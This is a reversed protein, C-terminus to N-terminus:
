NFIIQKQIYTESIYSPDKTSDILHISPMCKNSKWVYLYIYIYTHENLATQYVVM